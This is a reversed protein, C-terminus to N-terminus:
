SSLGPFTNRPHLDQTSYKTLLFTRPSVAEQSMNALLLEQRPCDNYAKRGRLPWLFTTVLSLHHGSFPLPQLFTTASVKGLGVQRLCSEDYAFRGFVGKRPRVARSMKGLMGRTGANRQVEKANDGGLTILLVRLFHAGLLM